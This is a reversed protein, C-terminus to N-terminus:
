TCRQLDESIGSGSSQCVSLCVSLCMGKGELLRSIADKFNHVGRYTKLYEQVVPSVSLCVSLCMGKDELLRSIADKFNHVGRYTKLYEQVVPHEALNVSQRFFVLLLTLNVKACVIINIIM